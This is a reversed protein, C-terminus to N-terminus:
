IKRKKHEEMIDCTIHYVENRYNKFEPYKEIFEQVTEKVNKKREEIIYDDLKITLNEEFIIYSRHEHIERIVVIIEILSLFFLITTLAIIYHENIRIAHEILIIDVIIVFFPLIFTIKEITPSESFEKLFNRLRRLRVM